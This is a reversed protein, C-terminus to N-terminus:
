CVMHIPLIYMFVAFILYFLPLCFNIPVLIKNYTKEGAKKFLIM